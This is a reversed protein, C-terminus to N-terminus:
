VRIGFDDRERTLNVNYFPDRDIYAKWKEAMYKRESIVRYYKEPNSLKLAEDNDDGRSVSEYHYLTAYPTYVVRYGREVAKLCLEVDSYAIKLNEEDLGGLENYVNHRMLLCAATIASYNRIVSALGFYGNDMMLLHKFAHSAIGLGMVVGAHQITNNPYLLKAGVAGVEERQGHEVMASLWESSIVETDNNLLLLYEGDAQEAAYNNIASFNFEQDYDSIRIKDSYRINDLYELTAAERSQNNVLIIEYNPYDTKELISSVCKELFAPQDRFPVIISVKHAHKIARKIRYSGIFNGDLVDGEIKNRSLYETLAKKASVYAYNKADTAIAASGPIKRWHYLIKPIHAIASTKEIARLMLDYDQSGDFGKRFGGIEDLVTKRFVCFHCIYNMSLFLDPSYDPKFFPDSRRGHIDIKDEDSYIMDLNRNQNLLRINEYLADPTLEDDHDLTAAFEGSALLLAENYALSMGQNKEFYKVKIRKDKKAYQELTKRIHAKPSADDVMCLEWNPYLQNMVSEIAKELWIHDVNYVPMIISIKPTYSFRAINEHINRIKEDSLSNKKIWIDYDSEIFETVVPVKNRKLYGKAKSLFLAFGDRSLTLAAKQALPFKALLRVYFLKRLEEAIRWAKSHKIVALEAEINQIHTDKLGILRLNADKQSNIDAIQTDKHRIIEELHRIHKGKESIAKAIYEDKTRLASKLNHVVTELNQIHADKTEIATEINSLHVDRICITTELNEIQIDKDQIVADLNEIHQDKSQILSELNEIHQEKGSIVSELNEVHINKDFLIVELNSIHEDKRQISEELNAIHADKYANKERIDAELRYICQRHKETLIDAKLAETETKEALLRRAKKQAEFIEPERILHSYRHHILHATNLFAEQKKVSDPTSDARRTFAATIQPIHCFDYKRSLRIWLDWDEHTDLTEDFLGTEEIINRCHAINLTPIYNGVLLKQRDFELGFDAREGITVYRDTVYLQLREHSDTYAIKYQGQELTNILIELHNPYYVDDDDLYAIYKGKAAKFATNRAAAVGRNEKHRFSVIRSDKDFSEIVDEIDEGGDNVVIIEFDQYTQSFVSKLANKLMDKRNCTPIIVSVMPSQQTNSMTNVECSLIADGTDPAINAIHQFFISLLGKNRVVNTEILCFGEAHTIDEPLTFSRFRNLSLCIDGYAREKLQSAYAQIAQNKQELIPTIDVLVNVAILPQNLEYFAIKFDSQSQQITKELWFVAARHDPHFEMPSPVYVLQPQFEKLVTIMQESVGQSDALERDEYNWFEVDRIGLIACANITEQQRLSVYDSKAMSGSADGKAGNTLIVVKVPDGFAAHIALSGGCGFTEDDPHPAFVLVRSGTLAETQYPILHNETKM